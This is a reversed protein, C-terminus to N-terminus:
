NVYLDDTWESTLLSIDVVRDFRENMWCSTYVDVLVFLIAFSFTTSKSFVQLDSFLKYGCIVNHSLFVSEHIKSRLHTERWKVTVDANKCNREDLSLPSMLPMINENSFAEQNSREVARTRNFMHFHNQIEADQKVDNILRRHILGTLLAVIM